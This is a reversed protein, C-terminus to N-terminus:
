KKGVRQVRLRRAEKPSIELPRYIEVRDGDSLGSDLEIARGYIGVKQKSLDIQPFRQLIGSEYIADQASAGLELELALLCQEDTLAYAVEVKIKPSEAM